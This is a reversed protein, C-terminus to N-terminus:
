SLFALCQRNFIEEEEIMFWHGARNSTVLHVDPAKELLIQSHKYPVFKDHLGWLALIPIEIEGLRDAVCPGGLTSFVAPPQSRAIELREELAADSVNVEGFIFMDFLNKLAPITFDRETGIRLLERLGQMESFFTHAEALGGPAMVILKEVISRHHLTFNLSTWGGLSNGILVVRNLRLGTVLEALLETQLEVRYEVDDPKSSLGYGLLDPVVVHFGADVFAPWNGKFNHYGSAGPGGGHICIITPKVDSKDGFEHFHIQYGDRTAFLKGEPIGISVSM